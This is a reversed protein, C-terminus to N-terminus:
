SQLSIPWSLQVVEATGDKEFDALSVAEITAHPKDFIGGGFQIVRDDTVDIGHHNYLFRRRVQLHDGPEFRSSM